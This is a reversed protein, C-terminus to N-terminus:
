EKQDDDPYEYQKLNGAIGAVVRTKTLCSAM